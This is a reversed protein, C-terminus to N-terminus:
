CSVPPCATGGLPGPCPDRRNNSCTLALVGPLLIWGPKKRWAAAVVIQKSNICLVKDGSAMEKMMSVPCSIESYKYSM